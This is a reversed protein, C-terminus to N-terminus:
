KKLVVYTVTGSTKGTIEYLNQGIPTISIRTLAKQAATLDAANEIARAQNIESFESQLQAAKETSHKTNVRMQNSFSMGYIFLFSLLVASVM